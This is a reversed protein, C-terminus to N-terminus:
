NVAEEAVPRSEELRMIAPVTFAALGLLMVGAGGVLYWFQV